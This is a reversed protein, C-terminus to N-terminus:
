TTFTTCMSQSVVVRKCRLLEGPALQSSVGPFPVFFTGVSSSRHLYLAPAARDGYVFRPSFAIFLYKPISEQATRKLQRVGEARREGRAAVVERQRYTFLFMSDFGFRKTSDARPAKRVPPRTAHERGDWDSTHLYSWAVETQRSPTRAREPPSRVLLRNEGASCCM